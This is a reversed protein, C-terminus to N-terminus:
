RRAQRLARLQDRERRAPQGLFRKAVARTAFRMAQAADDLRLARPGLQREVVQRRATALREFPEGGFADRTAHAGHHLVRARPDFWTAIGSAAARLGLELDEGYLFIRSDFPGLRRLTDTRAVLACGVAWGVRRPANSRWPAGGPVLPLPLVSGMLEPSSGPAPHVTDQRTGDACLVLPALLREPKDTELAEAALGLLSDDLLEVDPNVLVTVPEEIEAMGRNCARGFGVNEELPISLATASAEAVAVSEDSSASDVVIVRAGPLYREAGALLAKLEPASNHTVTLLAVTRPDIGRSSAPPLLSRAAEALERRTRRRDFRKRARSRGREGM